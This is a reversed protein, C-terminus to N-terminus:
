RLFREDLRSEAAHHDSKESHCEISLDKQPMSLRPFADEACLCFMNKLGSKLIRTIKEMENRLDMKESKLAKLGNQDYSRNERFRLDM